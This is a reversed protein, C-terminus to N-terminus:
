TFSGFILVLPRGAQHASRTVTQTDDLMPLTFNPAPQGVAPVPRSMLTKTREWDNPRKEAPASDMRAIFHAAPDGTRCGPMVWLLILTLILQGARLGFTRVTAANLRLIITFGFQWM